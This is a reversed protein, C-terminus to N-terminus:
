EFKMRIEQAEVAPPVTLTSLQKTCGLAHFEMDETIVLATMLKSVGISNARRLSESDM